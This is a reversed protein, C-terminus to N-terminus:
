LDSSTFYYRIYTYFYCSLKTYCYNFMNDKPLLPNAAMEFNFKNNNHRTIHKIDYNTTMFNISHTM